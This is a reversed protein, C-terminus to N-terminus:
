VKYNFMGGNECAEGIRMKEVDEPNMDSTVGTHKHSLYYDWAEKTIEGGSEGGEAQVKACIMQRKQLKTMSALPESNNLLLQAKYFIWANEM